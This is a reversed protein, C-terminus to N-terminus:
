PDNTLDVLKKHIPRVPHQDIMMDYVGQLLRQYIADKTVVAFDKHEILGSQIQYHTMRAMFRSDGEMIYLSPEYKDDRFGIEVHFPGLPQGWWCRWRESGEEYVM